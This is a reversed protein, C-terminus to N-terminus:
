YNWQTSVRRGFRTVTHDNRDFSYVDLIVKPVSKNVEWFILYIQIMFDGTIFYECTPKINSYLNKKESGYLYNM